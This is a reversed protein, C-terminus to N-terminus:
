QAAEFHLELCQQQVNMATPHLRFDLQSHDYRISIEVNKASILQDSFMKNSNCNENEPETSM